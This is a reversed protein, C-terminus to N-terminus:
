QEDVSRDHDFTGAGRNRPGVVMNQVPHEVDRDQRLWGDLVLTLTHVRTQDHLRVRELKDLLEAREPEIMPLSEVAPDVRYGLARLMEAQSIGLAAELDALVNPPPTEKFAETELRSIFSAPRKMAAALEFAQLGRDERRNKILKGFRTDMIAYQIM